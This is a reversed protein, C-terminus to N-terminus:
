PQRADEPLPKLSDPTLMNLPLKKTMASAMAARDFASVRVTPEQGRTASVQHSVPVGAPRALRLM